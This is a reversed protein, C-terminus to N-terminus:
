GFSKRRMCKSKLALSVFVPGEVLYRRWLRKPEISLRYLWGLGVRTIWIPPERVLGGLIDFAYGVGISLPVQLDGLHATIWKEQKPAGLGVLLIDPCARTVSEVARKDEDDGLVFGYRPCFSGAVKLTPYSADLKRAASEAAGAQGGLFFVSWGRAAALKCLELALLRGNVAGPLPTGLMRSARVIAMGDPVALDAHNIIQRFSEDRRAKMAHDENPTCIIRPKDKCELWKEVTSLVDETAIKHIEVGLISVKPFQKM